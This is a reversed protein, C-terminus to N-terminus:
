AAGVKRIQRRIQRRVQRPRQQRPFPELDDPAPPPSHAVGRSTSTEFDGRSVSHERGNQGAQRAGEAAALFIIIKFVDVKAQLLPSYRFLQARPEPTSSADSQM